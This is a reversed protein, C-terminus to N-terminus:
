NETQLVPESADEKKNKKYINLTKKSHFWTKTKKCFRYMEVPPISGSRFIPMGHINLNPEYMFLQEDTINSCFVAEIFGDSRTQADVIYDDAKIIDIAEIM